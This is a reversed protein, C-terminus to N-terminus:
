VAIDDARRRAHTRSAARNYIPRGAPVLMSSAVLAEGLMRVRLPRGDREPLESSLLVPLRYQRFLQGMPTDPGVRTLIENDDSQAHLRQM